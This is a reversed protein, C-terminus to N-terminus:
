EGRQAALKEQAQLTRQRRLVDVLGLDLDITRVADRSKGSSAVLDHGLTSVFDVVRVRGAKLDVSPWRLWVLEGIRLGAGLLFAWLPWTRDGEMSDLFERAEEPSWHKPISRHARPRAAGVMPNVAVMGATVALKFAGALPARALRVTNPSLPRANKTGGGKSLARQWALVTESTIDRVRKNGLRGRIYDDTSHRYDYRTKASLRGDADIGDLYLDMLEDVTTAGPRAKVAGRDVQALLERRAKGAETATRFGRRTLQERRGTLPDRGLSVKVYWGGRGDQYVGEPRAPV